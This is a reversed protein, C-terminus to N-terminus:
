DASICYLNKEGRIYIKKESFAPTSDTDEGISSESVLEYTASAKVIHMVGDRDLFYVMGGAVIPSAYFSSNFYNEWLKEKSDAKYCAIAGTGDSIFLFEDTAAPSSVDPTYTNDSWGVTAGSKDPKIALLAEYNASVYVFNNNVAPSVAVDNVVGNITWLEKGTMVDFATVEPSGNIIVQPIGNFMGLAPSSNVPKGRRSTEWLQKGSKVDFGIVSLRLESDYQVLLIDNYILLSSTYGYTHEPMGLNKAWLLNGNHDYAVLNGNAFIACVADKNVAPTQIAMGSEEDTEPVDKSAGPFDSGTGTWLLDGTNKDYCYVEFVSGEAGTLFLKDGWIVPSSKGFKPVPVKWKINKGTNGDWDTPYGEGGAIGRSGEGRFNPYNIGDPVPLVASAKGTEESRIGKKAEGPAPLLPRLAFSSIVALIFFVSSFVILYKKSREKEETIQPKPPLKGRASKEQGTSLWQFVVFLIAGALLLYSGTELQWRAAFYAKRAILDLSRVNEAIDANEPDKDFQEIISKLAPDELPDSTKLQILSMIMTFAIVMTFIGSVVSLNRFLRIQNESFKM